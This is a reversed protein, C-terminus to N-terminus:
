EAAEKGPFRSVKQALKKEVRKGFEAFQLFNKGDIAITGQNLEAFLLKGLWGKNAAKGLDAVHAKLRFYRDIAAGDIKKTRCLRDTFELETAMMTLTSSLELTFDKESGHKAALRNFAAGDVITFELTLKKEQM